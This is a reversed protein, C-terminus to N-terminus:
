NEATLDRRRYTPRRSPSPPEDVRAVAARILLQGQVDPVEFVEGAKVNNPLDALAILKM